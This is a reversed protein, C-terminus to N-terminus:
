FVVNESSRHCEENYVLGSQFVASQLEQKERLGAKQWTGPLDIFQQKTDQILKEMTAAESTLAARAEEIEAISKSIHERMQEADAKSLDGRLQAETLKLNLIRQDDLKVTLVRDQEALRKQRHEWKAKAVKPIINVLADATPETLRLLELWDAEIQEKSVSVSNTCEPNWCWMRPYLKGGRGRPSGSTLKQGCSACKVFGRLPWQESTAIRPVAKKKGALVHQVQHWLEASVLPVFKGAYEKGDHKIIGCYTPTKLMMSFTSRSLAKGKKSRLGAATM